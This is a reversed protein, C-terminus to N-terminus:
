QYKLVFVLKLDIGDGYQVAVPLWRIFEYELMQNRGIVTLELQRLELLPEIIRMDIDQQIGGQGTRHVLQHLHAQM